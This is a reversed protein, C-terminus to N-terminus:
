LFEELLAKALTRFRLRAISWLGVDALPRLKFRFSARAMSAVVIDRRTICTVFVDSFIQIGISTLVNESSKSELLKV